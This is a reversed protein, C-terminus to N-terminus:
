QGLNTRDAEPVITLAPIYTITLLAVIMTVLVSDNGV